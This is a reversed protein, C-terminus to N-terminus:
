VQIPKELGWFELAEQPTEREKFCYLEVGKGNEGRKFGYVASPLISNYKSYMAMCYGGTDHMLVLDGREAKPLDVDRALFDGQFCLPGGLDYTVKEDSLKIKGTPDVLDWRHKWNAPLYVERIFNNAGVHTLIIPKVGELWQKVHEVRTLTKGAKLFLSRGFETIIRYKGSFLEPVREQLQKKYIGYDFQGPEESELYTTSLGGGIDITDLARGCDREIQLVFDVCNRAGQVFLELPNGQSGVHIHIGTLWTYQRYLEAVKNRTEDTVPIGFKSLKTATNMIEQTGGGVVPNIRLGIKSKSGKCENKLLEDTLEMERENDLNIYINMDLARKLDVKTKVPSDFIVNRPEFGLDVAHIAESISACEGGMGKEKAVLLVGRISNAKFAAAHTFFPEDFTKMLRDIRATFYDIDFLDISPQNDNILNKKCVAEFVAEMEDPFFPEVSPRFSSM